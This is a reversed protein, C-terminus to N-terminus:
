LSFNWALFLALDSFIASSQSPSYITLVRCFHDSPWDGKKCELKGPLVLPM